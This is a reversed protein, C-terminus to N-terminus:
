PYRRRRKGPRRLDVLSIGHTPKPPLNKPPAAINIDAISPMRFSFITKGNFNSIALDGQSMIDMGILIDFQGAGIDGESVRLRPFVVQNPLFVSVFYVSANKIVGGFAQVQTIGIQFLQCEKAVKPSVVTNTAGTDWIATYIKPPVPTENNEPAYPLSIGVQNFLVNTIPHFQTAFARVQVQAM